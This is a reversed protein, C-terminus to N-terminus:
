NFEYEDSISPSSLNNDSDLTNFLCLLLLFSLRLDESRMILLIPKYREIVSQELLPYLFRLGEEHLM